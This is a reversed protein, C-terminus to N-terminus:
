IPAGQVDGNALIEKGDTALKLTPPEEKALRAKAADRLEKRIADAVQNVAVKRLCHIFYADAKHSETPNLHLLMDALAFKQSDPDATIMAGDIIRNAWEHFEKRGMPLPMPELLQGKIEPITPAKVRWAM